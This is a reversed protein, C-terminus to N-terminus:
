RLPRGRRRGDFAADLLDARLDFLRGRVVVALLELLPERLQHAAHGNNLDARGGLRFHLFLLGTDLVGHVGRLRRDLFPDHGTATHRQQATGLRKVIELRSPSWCSPTLMM